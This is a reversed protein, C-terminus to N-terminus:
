MFPLEEQNMKSMDAWSSDQQPQEAKKVEDIEFIAVNTYTVNREKSYNNTLEFNSVKISDGVSIENAKNHAYGILRVYGSYDKVYNGDKNKKSTSIQLQSYNGCNEVKWVKAWFGKSSLGM